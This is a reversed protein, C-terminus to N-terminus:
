NRTDETRSDLEEDILPTLKLEIEIDKCVESLMKSTLDRLDKHRISVFDVKKCSMYWIKGGCPMKNTSKCHKMWVM